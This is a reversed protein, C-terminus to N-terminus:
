FNLFMDKSSAHVLPYHKRISPLYPLHAYSLSQPFSFFQITLQSCIKMNDSLGSQLTWLFSLGFCSRSHWNCLCCLLWISNAFCAGSHPVQTWYSGYLAGDTALATSEAKPSSFDSIFFATLNQVTGPIASPLNCNASWNCGQGM